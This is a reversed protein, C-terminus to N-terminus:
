APFSMRLRAHVSELANTTNCKAAFRQRSPSSPIVRAWARRWAAVITRFRQEWEGREFADLARLTFCTSPAAYITRLATALPKRQNWNAFDLSQRLLHVVCTQLTTRPFVAVLAEKM